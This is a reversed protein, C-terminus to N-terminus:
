VKKFYQYLDCKLMGNYLKRKKDARRGFMREFDENATLVYIKWDRHPLLVKGMDRYLEYAEDMTLLREGYPPNIVVTAYQADNTLDRIDKQEIHIHKEVCAIGANRRTLTCMDHDIDSAFIEYTNQRIKSIALAREDSTIKANGISLGEFGFSRHLGPAMDAAIMAAEIAITGSGCMPDIFVDRGFWRATKIMAAALTEKLPAASGIERYGRKHLGEGSTDLMITCIDNIILFSFEYRKGTEPFLTIGYSQSMSEVMAKKIIRQCSPINYLASKLSHGNIVFADDRGVIDAFKIKKVGEFLEDFTSAHFKSLVMLVREGTRLGLNARVMERTGGEFFVRGDTVETVTIDMRALEDKVFSELGFLCPVAFLTKEKM